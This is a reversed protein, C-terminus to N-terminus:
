GCRFYHPPKGLVPDKVWQTLGPILGADEHVEHQTRLGFLWFPFEMVM